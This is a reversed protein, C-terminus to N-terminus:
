LEACCFVQVVYKCEAESTLGQCGNRSHRLHGQLCSPLLVLQAALDIEGVGTMQGCLLDGSRSARVEAHTVKEVIHRGSALEELRVIYFELVYDCLEYPHGKGTGVYTEGQRM